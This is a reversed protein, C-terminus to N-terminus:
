PHYYFDYSVVNVGALDLPQEAARGDELKVESWSEDAEQSFDVGLRVCGGHESSHEIVPDGKYAWKGGYKWGDLGEQFTWSVGQAEAAEAQAIVITPMMQPLVAPVGLVIGASLTLSVARRLRKLKM